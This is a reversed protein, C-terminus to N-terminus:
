LKAAFLLPSSAGLLSKLLLTQITVLDGFVVYLFVQYTSQCNICKHINEFDFDFDFDSKNM